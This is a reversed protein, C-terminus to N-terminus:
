SHSEMVKAYESLLKFDSFRKWCQMESSGATLVVEYQLLVPSKYITNIGFRQYAPSAINPYYCMTTCIDHLSFYIGSMKTAHIGAGYKVQAYRLM